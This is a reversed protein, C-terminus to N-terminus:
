KQTNVPLSSFKLQILENGTTLCQKCPHLLLSTSACGCVVATAVFPFLLLSPRTKMHILQYSNSWIGFQIWVQPWWMLATHLEPDPECWGTICLLDGARTSLHQIELSKGLFSFSQKTLNWGFGSGYLAQSRPRYWSTRGMESKQVM